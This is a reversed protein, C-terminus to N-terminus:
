ENAVGVFEKQFGIVPMFRSALSVMLFCRFGIVFIEIGQHLQMGSMEALTNSTDKNILM